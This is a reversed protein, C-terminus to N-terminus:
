FDEEGAKGHDAAVHELVLVGEAKATDREEKSMYTLSESAEVQQKFEEWIGKVHAQHRDLAAKSEFAEQPWTNCWEYFARVTALVDEKGPPSQEFSNIMLHEPAVGSGEAVGGTEKDFDLAPQVYKLEEVGEKGPVHAYPRKWGVSNWFNESTYTCEGAAFALEQGDAQAERAAQQIVSIYAERALGSQRLKEDTVAYAVMFMQKGRSSGDGNRLPLRGGAVTSLVEGRSDKIVHVSYKTMDDNGWPTKGDVAARLIEEPDVEETGFTKVFLKQVGSLMESQGNPVMEITYREGNAEIIADPNSPDLRKFKSQAMLRNLTATALPKPRDLDKRAEVM